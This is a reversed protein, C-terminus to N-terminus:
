KGINLFTLIFIIESFVIKLAIPLYIFLVLNLCIFKTKKLEFRKLFLNIILIVISVNLLFNFLSASILEIKSSGFFPNLIKGYLLFIYCAISSQLSTLIKFGFISKQPFNINLKSKM